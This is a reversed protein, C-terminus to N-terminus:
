VTRSSLSCAKSASQKPYEGYSKRGCVASPIHVLRILARSQM